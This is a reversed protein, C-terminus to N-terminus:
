KNYQILFESLFTTISCGNSGFPSIQVDRQGPREETDIEKGFADLLYVKNEIADLLALSPFQNYTNLIVVNSIEQTPYSKKWKVKGKVLCALTNQVQFLQGTEGNFPLDGLYKWDASVQADITTKGDSLQIGKPGRLLCQGSETFGLCQSREVKLAIKKGNGLDVLYAKNKTLVGCVAKGNLQGPYIEQIEEPITIRRLVKANEGSFVVLETKKTCIFAPKNQIECSEIALFYTSTFSFAERGMKDIIQIKTPFHLAINEQESNRTHLVTPPFLLGKESPIKWKQSGNKYGYINKECEIIVNGRGSLACFSLVTEGPNMTFYNKANSTAEDVKELGSKEVQIGFFQNNIWGLSEAKGPETHRYSVKQPLNEHLWDGKKSDTAISKKMELELMVADISSSEAAIFGMGNYSIVSFTTDSIEGIRWNETIAKCIDFVPFDNRAENKEKLHFYDNLYPVLENDDKLDFLLVKRENFEFLVVGTKVIGFLPSKEYMDDTYALYKKEYFTYRTAESPIYEGFCSRDDVLPSPNKKQSRITSYTIRKEPKVYVDRVEKEKSLFVISFSAQADVKWAVNNETSLTIDYYRLVLQTGKFKGLYKGFKFTNNGTKEFPFIGNEFVSRIISFNWKEHLSIVLFNRKGSLYVTNPKPLKSQLSAYLKLNNSNCNVGIENLQFDDPHHIAIINEDQEGFYSLYSEKPNMDVIAWFAYLVWGLLGLGFILVIIRKAM